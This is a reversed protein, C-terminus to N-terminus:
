IGMFTCAAALFADFDSRLMVPIQGQQVIGATLYVSTGIVTFVSGSTQCQGNYSAFMQPSFLALKGNRFLALGIPTSSQNSYYIVPTALITGDASRYGIAPTNMLMSGISSSASLVKTVAVTVTGTSSSFQLMLPAGTGGAAGYLTFDGAGQAARSLYNFSVFTTTIAFGSGIATIAGTSLVLKFPYATTLASSLAIGYLAGDTSDIWVCTMFSAASANVITPAKTWVATNSSNNLTIGTGVVSLYSGDNLTSPLTVGAAAASTWVFPDKAAPWQPASAGISGLLLTM